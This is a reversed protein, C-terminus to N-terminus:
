SKWAAREVAAGLRIEINVDYDESQLPADRLRDVIEWEEMFPADHHIAIIEDISTIDSYWDQLTKYASDFASLVPM